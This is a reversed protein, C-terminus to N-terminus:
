ENVSRSLFFGINDNANQPNWDNLNAGDEDADGFNVLNGNRSRREKCLGTRILLAEDAQPPSTASTHSEAKRLKM